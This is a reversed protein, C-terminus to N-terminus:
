QSKLRNELTRLAIIMETRLEEPLDIYEAETLLRTGLVTVISALNCGGCIMIDDVSPTQGSGQRTEQPDVLQMRCEPNACLFSTRM